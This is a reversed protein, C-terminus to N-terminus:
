ILSQQISRVYFHIQLKEKLLNLVNEFINFILCYDAFDIKTKTTLEKIFHTGPTETVNKFLLHM